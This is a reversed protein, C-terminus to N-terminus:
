AHRVALPMITPEVLEEYDDYRMKVLERHNGANFAIEEDETLAAAVYTEMNFLNGFPPMAGLECGPFLDQFEEESALAAEETELVEKVRDFDVIHTSPTVIMSMTGDINAMVTKAMEKGPIHASAAVEQATYANSHKIVMYKKDHSDLFETLKSLPM